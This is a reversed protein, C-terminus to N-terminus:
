PATGNIQRAVALAHRADEPLAHAEYMEIGTWSELWDALATGVGPHMAAIYDALETTQTTAVDYLGTRGQTVDTGEAHFVQDREDPASIAKSLTRIKEAATRLEDAPNM